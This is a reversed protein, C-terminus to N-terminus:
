DGVEGGPDRDACMCGDGEDRAEGSSEACMFGAVTLAERVNFTLPRRSRRVKRNPLGRVQLM